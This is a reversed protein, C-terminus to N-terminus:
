ERAVTAKAYFKARAPCSVWSVLVVTVFSKPIPRM